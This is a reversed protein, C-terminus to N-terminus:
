TLSILPSSSPEERESDQRSPRGHSWPDGGARRAGHLRAPGALAGCGGTGAGWPAEGRGGSRRRAAADAPKGGARRAADAGV